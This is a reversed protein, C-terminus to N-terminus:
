KDWSIFAWRTDRLPPITNNQISQQYFLSAKKAEEDSIGDLSWALSNIYEEESSVFSSTEKEPNIFQLQAYIGMSYLLNIVYIYDPKPIITRGIAQLVREDLYSGGMKYTLYVSKKAHSDLEKLITKMDDVELCRSALVIDCVPINEWPTEMDHSLTTINKINSQTANKVLTEIMKTSFDFATIHKVLPAFRLSFTGPGCGVDLLTDKKDLTIYTSVMDNYFSTHIKKNMDSAKADWSAKDKKKHTSATRQVSYLRGFDIAEINSYM